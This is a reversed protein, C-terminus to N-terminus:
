KKKWFGYNEFGLIKNGGQAADQSYARARSREIAEKARATWTTVAVPGTTQVKPRVPATGTSTSFTRQASAQQTAAKRLIASTVTVPTTSGFSASQAAAFSLRAISRRAPASM